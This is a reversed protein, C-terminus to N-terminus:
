FMGGVLGLMLLNDGRSRRVTVFAFFTLFWIDVPEVGGLLQKNTASFSVCGPDDMFNAFMRAYMLTKEKQSMEPLRVEALLDELDSGFQQSIYSKIIPAIKISMSPSLEAIFALSKKMLEEKKEDATLLPSLGKDIFSVVRQVLTESHMEKANLLLLRFEGFAEQADQRYKSFAPENLADLSASGEMKKFAHICKDLLTFALKNFRRSDIKGKSMMLSTYEQILHAINAHQDPSGGDKDKKKTIAITIPKKPEPEATYPPPGQNLFDDNSQHSESHPQPSLYSPFPNSDLFGMCPSFPSSLYGRSQSRSSRGDPSPTSLYGSKDKEKPSAM